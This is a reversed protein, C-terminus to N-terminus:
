IFSMETSTNSKNSVKAYSTIYIKDDLLTGNENALNVLIYVLTTVSLM